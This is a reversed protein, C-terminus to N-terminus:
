KKRNQKARWRDQLRKERVEDKELIPKTILKKYEAISNLDRLSPLEGGLQQQEDSPTVKTLSNMGMYIGVVKQLLYNDLPYMGLLQLYLKEFHEGYGPTLNPNVPIFERAEQVPYTM